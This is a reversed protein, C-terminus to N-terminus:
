PRSDGEQPISWGNRNLHGAVAEAAVAHGKANWHVDDVFYTHEGEDLVATLHPITDVFDIQQSAYWERLAEPLENVGRSAAHSGSEM